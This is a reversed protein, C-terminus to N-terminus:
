QPTVNPAGGLKDLALRRMRSLYFGAKGTQGEGYYLQKDDLAFTNPQIEFGSEADIRWTKWTSLQVALLYSPNQDFTSLHLLAFDGWARIGFSAVLLVPPGPLPPSLTPAVTSLTKTRPIYWVRGPNPQDCSGADTVFGVIHTPTPVVDCTVAPSGDVITRVGLGDPAWGRIRDIGFDTWVALDGEGAGHYSSSNPELLTYESKHVDLLGWVNGKGISFVQGGDHDTDFAILGAPAESFLVPPLAARWAQQPLRPAMMTVKVLPSGGTVVNHLASERGSGFDCPSESEAIPAVRELAGVTVGDRLRIVRRVGYWFANGKVDQEGTLFVEPQGEVSHTSAVPFYPDSVLEQQPSTEECGSGCAKWEIAALPFKGPLAEFLGCKAFSVGEVPKWIAADVLWGLNPPLDGSDVAFQDTSDVAPKDSPQTDQVADLLGGDTAAQNESGDPESCAAAVGAAVVASSLLAVVLRMLAGHM